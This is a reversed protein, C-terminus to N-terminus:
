LDKPDIRPIEWISTGMRGDAVATNFACSFGLEDLTEITEQTYTAPKGYPYAFAREGPGLNSSLLDMSRALDSRQRGLDMNALVKHSHSHGGMHFGADQMARAKDWDVYLSLAFEEPPGLVDPFIHALLRESTAPDLQHNVLYKLAATEDDDWRYAARVQDHSPAPPLAIDLDEAAKIVHKRLEVTGLFALLFHNMHVALVEHDELAATPLFFAGPVGAEELIGAVTDHHEVLGDDFTMICVDMGPNWRGELFDLCAELPVTAFTEKVSQVQRRFDSISVGKINPFATSETDRVYHYMVTVLRFSNESTTM